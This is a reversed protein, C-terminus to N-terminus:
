EKKIIKNIDNLKTKCDDATSWLSLIYRSVESQTTAQTPVNPM